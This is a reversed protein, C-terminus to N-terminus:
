GKLASRLIGLGEGLQDDDIVLPPLLKIVTDDRGCRELVLGNEFCRRAVSEARRPGGANALDVGWILGLGRVEIEPDLGSLAERVIAGKRMVEASLGSGEWHRLAAAGAVFALQNGRFTGSHEGPKWVDLEPRMLVLAMPMGCGGIAKALCAIDPVIAAREFSFFPGTRGCGAQIEDLVLMIGRRRCLEALGTLFEVPAINVGGETQVAELLIAAPLDLGSGPDELLSEVYGLADPFPRPGVPYPLVVSGTLPLGAGSRHGRNATVSLAGLTMGHWGGSFSCVTTRGTVLRALKLAAEIANAGTPGCFQVKHDLGRPRLITREFAELFDRKADTYMDLAHLVGDRRLHEILLDRIFPPNHGYNLTGAGVFFDLYRRGSEDFLEAGRATTFVVPFTRCYARVNSELTEFVGVESGEALADTVLAPEPRM